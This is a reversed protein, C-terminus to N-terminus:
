SSRPQRSYATAMLDALRAFRKPAEPNLRFTVTRGQRSASAPPTAVVLGAAELANLDRTLSSSHEPAIERLEPATFTTGLRGACLLLEFRRPNLHTLMRREADSIEGAM